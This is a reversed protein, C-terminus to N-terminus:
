PGEPPGGEDDDNPPSGWAGRGGHGKGHGKGPGGKEHMAARRAAMHHRRLAMLGLQKAQDSTDSLTGLLTGDADYVKTGDIRGLTRTMVITGDAQITAVVDNDKGYVQDGAVKGMFAGDPRYASGDAKMTCCAKGNPGTVTGDDNATLTTKGDAATFTTTAFAAAALMAALTLTLMIRKMM